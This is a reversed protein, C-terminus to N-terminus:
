QSLKILLTLTQLREFLVLTLAWETSNQSSPITNLAQIWLMPQIQRKFKGNDPWGDGRLSKYFSKTHEASWCSWSWPSYSLGHIGWSPVATQRSGMTVWFHYSCLQFATGLHLEGSCSCCPFTTLLPGALHILSQIYLFYLTISCCNGHSRYLGKHTPPNPYRLQETLVLCLIICIHYKACPKLSPCLHAPNYKQRCVVKQM